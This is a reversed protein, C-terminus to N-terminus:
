NYGYCSSCFMRCTQVNWLLVSIGSPVFINELLPMAAHVVMSFNAVVREFLSNVLEAERADDAMTEVPVPQSIQYQKWELIMLKM